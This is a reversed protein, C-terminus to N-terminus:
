LKIMDFVKKEFMQITFDKARLRANKSLEERLKESAIVILTEEILEPISKWLMGDKSDTIIESQGGADIVVPVAGAGMAEVTSIGFHEAKEPYKLLDEGYGTAHWYIKSRSYYEWLDKNSKNIKFHIPYGKANKELDEFAQKDNEKVSVAITFEWDKLGQDIMKKFADIMIYQKKYDKTGNTKDFVRFRGVHLIMNEKKTKIPHLEVPPYIVKANIHFQSDVFKKTFESNCFFANVKSKKINGLFSVKGLEIPRQIHVFLKRCLLLPLSGDSLLIIADYKRSLVMRSLTSVKSAFINEVLKVKSLDLGFRDEVLRLDNEEDWFVDVSHKESLVSAITMMYKEGGGCDDLYPDYIGIKM